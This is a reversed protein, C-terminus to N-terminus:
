TRVGLVRDVMLGELGRSTEVVLVPGLPAEAPACQEFRVALSSVPVDTEYGTVWGLSAAGDAQSRIQDARLIGRIRALDMCFGAAGVTFRVVQRADDTSADTSM